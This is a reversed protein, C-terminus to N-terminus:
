FYYNSLIVKQSQNKDNIEVQNQNSNNKFENKLINTSLIYNLLIFCFSFFFYLLFKKFIHKTLNYKKKIIHDRLNLLINNTFISKESSTKM